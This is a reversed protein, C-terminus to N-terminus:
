FGLLGQPLGVGLTLPFLLYFGLASGVAVALSPLIPRRYMVAAVFFTFVAFAVLFGLLKVLGVCVALGIWTALARGIERTKARAAPAADARAPVAAPTSVSTVILGLALAIMALGYWLPFFGPGPGDAGLYEWQRAEVVIYIGLGALLAGSVLNGRKVPGRAM